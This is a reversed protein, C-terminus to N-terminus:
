LLCGAHLQVCDCRVLLSAVSCGHCIRQVQKTRGRASLTPRLPQWELPRQQHKGPPTSNAHAHSSIIGGLANRPPEDLQPPSPEDYM